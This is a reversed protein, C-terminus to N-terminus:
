GGQLAGALESRGSIGLKGYAAYLHSQVTRASVSLREAIVRDSLGSAALSAIERERDTLHVAVEPVDRLAPTAAHCRAALAHARAASDRSRAHLRAGDHERAAQAEAEAAYLLAGIAEFRESAASLAVGDRAVIARGYEVRAAALEGQCTGAVEALRSAAATQGFRVLDHLLISVQTSRGLAEAEDLSSELIARASSLRGERAEVAARARAEAVVFMRTRIPSEEMAALAAQVEETTAAASSALALTEATCAARRQGFRDLSGVLVISRAASEAARELDGHLVLVHGFIGALVAAGEDWGVVEAVAIASECLTLAEAIRGLDCLVTIRGILVRGDDATVPAGALIAAQDDILDIADQSRGMSNLAASASWVAALRDPRRTVPDDLIGRTVELAGPGDNMAIFVLARVADIARLWQPDSIMTAADDLVANAGIADAGDLLQGSARLLASRVREEDTSALRELDDFARVLSARRGQAGHLTALLEAAEFGGGGDFAATALTTATALAAAVPPVSVPDSLISWTFNGSLKRAVDLLSAPDGYDGLEVRWVAARVDDGARRQGVRELAAMVELRIAHAGAVGLSDRVLEVYIPHAIRVEFRRASQTITVLGLRELSMVAEASSLEQLLSLGLEDAVALLGLARQEDPSSAEALRAGLLEDLADIPPATLVWEGDDLRLRDSALSARLLERVYLSNGNSLEWAARAVGNTDGGPLWAAVLTAVDGHSLPQLDVRTLTGSRWLDAVPGPRVQDGTRLTLLLRADTGDLLQRLFAASVDDLWQVDDVVVLARSRSRVADAAAMMRGLQDSQEGVALGAFPAFPVARRASTAAHTSAIWGDRALRDVVLGAVATKGVGASGAILAGRGNAVADVLFDVEDGRGVIRWGGLQM